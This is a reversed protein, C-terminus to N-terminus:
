AARRLTSVLTCRGFCPRGPPLPHCQIPNSEIPTVIRDSGSPQGLSAHTRGTFAVCPCSFAGVRHLIPAQVFSCSVQRVAVAILAAILGLAMVALWAVTVAFDTRRM